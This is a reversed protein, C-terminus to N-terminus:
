VPQTYLSIISIQPGHGLVILKPRSWRLFVSDGAQTSDGDLMEFRQSTMGAYLGLRPPDGGKHILSAHENEEGTCAGLTSKM